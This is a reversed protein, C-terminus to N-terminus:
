GLILQELAVQLEVQVEAAEIGLYELVPHLDVGPRDDLAVVLSDAEQLALVETDRKEDRHEGHQAPPVSREPSGLRRRTDTRQRQRRARNRKVRRLFTGLLSRVEGEWAM